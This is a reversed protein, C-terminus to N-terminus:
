LYASYKKKYTDYLEVIKQYNEEKFYCKYEEFVKYADGYLLVEYKEKVIEYIIKM